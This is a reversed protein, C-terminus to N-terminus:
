LIFLFFDKNINLYAFILPHRKEKDPVKSSALNYNSDSISFCFELKIVFSMM